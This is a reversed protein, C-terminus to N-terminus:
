LSVRFSRGFDDWSPLFAMVDTFVAIFYSIFIDEKYKTKNNNKTNQFRQIKAEIKLM